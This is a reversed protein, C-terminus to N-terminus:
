NHFDFSEIKYEIELTGDREDTLCVVLSKHFFVSKFLCLFLFNGHFDEMLLIFSLFIKRREKMM